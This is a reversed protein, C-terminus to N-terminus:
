YHGSCSLQVQSVAIHEGHPDEGRNVVRLAFEGTSVPYSGVGVWQGRHAVQDVTFSRVVGMDFEGRVVQYTAPHGAVDRATGSNPVYVSVGCTGTHVAGTKFWWVAYAAPDDFTRNGSMPMAMFTGRCGNSAWGGNKRYWGAAGDSYTGIRYYGQTSTHTCDEGGVARYAAVPRPAAQTTGSHHTPQPASASRQPGAHHAASTGKPAPAPPPESGGQAGISPASMPLPAQGPTNVPDPDNLTDARVLGPARAPGSKSAFAGSFLSPVLLLGLAVAISAVV